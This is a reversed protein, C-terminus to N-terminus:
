AKKSKKDILVAEKEKEEVTMKEYLKFLFELREKDSEFPKSRYCREVALDNLRHVEQLEEPMNEPDYLQALTKESHNEREELIRFVCQELEEKQFQSIPPFPFTNYCLTNSYQMDTKLRGAVAKVWVIHMRSSVISFLYPEANYIARAANSIITGSDLFGIPVYNRKESGTQPIIISHAEIFTTEDFQHPFAAKKRTAAKKSAIRLERCKEFRKVLPPISYSLDKNKDTVWICYRKKGNMFDDAGIYDKILPKSEPYEKLLNNKEEENLILNGGDGAKIGSTMAPLSSLQKQKKEIIINKANALYANINNVVYKTNGNFIFKQTKEINRIGIIVVSVAAKGKANNDWKFSTYAFGIELNKDFIPPWLLAVQEGQCISNTSVFAFQASHNRIYNGGKIFWAAIYDLNKYNKFGKFVLAMDKKQEANQLSSGLYPPNGLIYIEDGERKPCVTEWDVRTANGHVINGGAQLPLTPNASGFVEKFKQNMQHQALWLSLIAIEHAFDDLEIGYFQSLEIRSFLTPQYQAALTLQAKPILELQYPEFGTAAKQLSQLQELIRIELLRLEKYAIILFNGSGCAPDFIKIKSIRDLLKNLKRPEYTASEFEQYLDNLFLPEIVKMINPVSTYHMGLGGRHEPTIVAQIMSGFIDPNIFAWNQDGSDIVAQRSRRTFVPSEYIDRFLGGNVYPFVELYAPLNRRQKAPTNMVEFIRDLHGSLDSGDTQTHNQISHTFLNKPFIETDEAFFCFLLRSLFVNLGHIFEPSNDPNDKKIEDFLKAMKEAAKVDAETEKKHSAKEMGAWPLFFDFHKPLADFDIDLSDNIKTDIALLTIFDTVIVFRQGQKLQEKANTIALHLDENFVPKFFVKGKWSVEGVMKSLNLNGKQLRTISAKPLGYALLLEYIFTEQTYNAIVNQLNSEIQAINM